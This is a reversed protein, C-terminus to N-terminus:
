EYEPLLETIAEVLRHLKTRVFKKEYQNSQKRKADNHKLGSTTSDVFIATIVNFLGFIILVMMVVFSVNFAGGYGQSLIVCLSKGNATSFDGIMFRFSTFMARGVSGFFEEGYMYHLKCVPDDKDPFEDPDGCADPHTLHQGEYPGLMIRFLVGSLYLIALFLM